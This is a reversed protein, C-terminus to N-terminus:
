VGPRLEVLFVLVVAAGSRPVHQLYRVSVQHAYRVAVHRRTVCHHRPEYHRFGSYGDTTYRDFHM